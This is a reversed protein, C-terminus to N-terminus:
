LAGPGARALGSRRAHRTFGAEAAHDRVAGGYQGAARQQRDDGAAQQMEAALAGGAILHPPHRNRYERDLECRLDSVRNEDFAVEPHVHDRENRHHAREGEFLLEGPAITPRMNEPPAASSSTAEVRARLSSVDSIWRAGLTM